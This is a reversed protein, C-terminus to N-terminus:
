VAGLASYLIMDKRQSPTCVRRGLLSQIHDHAGMPITAEKVSIDNIEQLFIMGGITNDVTFDEDTAIGDGKWRQETEESGCPLPTPRPLAEM